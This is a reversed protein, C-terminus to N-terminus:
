KLLNHDFDYLNECFISYRSGFRIFIFCSSKDKKNATNMEAQLLDSFIALSSGEGTALKLILLITSVPVTISPVIM